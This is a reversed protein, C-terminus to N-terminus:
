ASVGSTRPGAGSRFGPTFYRTVGGVVTKLPVIARIEDVPITFYDRDLVVFDAWKGKELSGLDKEHMVYEGAWTTWMKLARVRDIAEDKNVYFQSDIDGIKRTILTWLFYGMNSDGHFQGVVRVGADMLSRTPVIFKEMEPSGYEHALQLGSPLFMPGLSVIVGYKLLGEVVDPVAGVVMGHELTPRRKRIDEVTLGAKEAIIDLLKIFLRAGESGLAHVGALRWGAVGANELADWYMYGPEPCLQHPKLEPPAPLDPGICAQIDGTDWRESAVGGMWFYDGGLGTLAGTRTYIQRTFEPSGPQRHVEYLGQFRIPLQGAVAMATFKTWGDAPQMRSSYTTFGHAAAKELLFRTAEAQKEIPAQGGPMLRGIASRTNGGVWGRAAADRTAPTMSEDLYDSFGPIAENALELVPTNVFGRTGVRIMLLRDQTIGDLFERNALTKDRGWYRSKLEGTEPNRGM